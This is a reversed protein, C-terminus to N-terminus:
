RSFGKWVAVPVDAKLFAVLLGSLLALFRVLPWGSSDESLSGVLQGIAVAPELVPLGGGPPEVLVAKTVPPQVLLLM